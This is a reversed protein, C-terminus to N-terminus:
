ARESRGVEHDGDGVFRVVEEIVVRIEDAAPEHLVAEGARVPLVWVARGRARKKDNGIARWLLDRERDNSLEARVALGLGALLGELREPLSEDRLVGCRRALRAAAVMGISVAEGHTLPRARGSTASELAHGLTHGLNLLRREGREHLDRGCISLKIRAAAVVARELAPLQGELLLAGDRELHDVLAVDAIVGCKVVEALGGRYAEVPLTTLHLTDIHIGRPVDIAGAVNKLHSVNVGSKGGLAADAQALLTTPHLELAVGRKFTHAAMGALDTVAGGGAAVITWDRDVGARALRDWTDALQSWSKTREGGPVGVICSPGDLRERIARAHIEPLGADLIMAIRATERRAHGGRRVTVGRALPIEEVPALPRVPDEWGAGADAEGAFSPEYLCRLLAAAARLPADLPAGTATLAARAAAETDIKMAACRYGDVREARMRELRAPVDSAEEILPRHSSRGVGIRAALVGSDADLWVLTTSEALDRASGADTLSGAGLALVAGNEEGGTRSLWGALAEREARRFRAEGEAFLNAVSRGERSAITEDLDEFDAGLLRAVSRGVATKGTGSLGTLCLRRGPRKM